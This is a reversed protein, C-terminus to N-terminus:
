IEQPLNQARIGRVRAAASRQTLDRARGVATEDHRVRHETRRVVADQVSRAAVVTSEKRLLPQFGGPPTRQDAGTLQTKSGVSASDGDSTRRGDMVVPRYVRQGPYRWRDARDRRGPEQGTRRAPRLYGPRRQVEAIQARDPLWGGAFTGKRRRGIVKLKTAHVLSVALLKGRQFRDVGLGPPEHRNLRQGSRRRRLRRTPRPRPQRRSVRSM